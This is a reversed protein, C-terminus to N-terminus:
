SPEQEHNGAGEQDRDTFHIRITTGDGLRSQISWQAHHLAVIKQCLTMGIGAGGEKRARSKDVMYFPETIKYVEDQPIGCGDDSLCFDYGDSGNSGELLISGHEQCAKRANDILNSFLSLLLDQDGYLVGEEIRVTLQIKKQKLLQETMREVQSILTAVDIRQVAIDQKDVYSIEMMKRALHELRKGQRFIYDSSEAIEERNMEMSRIMDAYGII